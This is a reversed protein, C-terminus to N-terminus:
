PAEITIGDGADNLKIRKTQTGATNTLILGKGVTHVNIDGDTEITVFLVGNIYIELPRITGTGGKFVNLYNHPTGAITESTFELCEFNTNDALYDTSFVQVTAHVDNGPDGKPIVRYYSGTNNVTPYLDIFRADTAWNGMQTNHFILKKTYPITLNSAITQTTTDTQSVMDAIIANIKASQAMGGAIVVSPRTM